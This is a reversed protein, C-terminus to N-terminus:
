MPPHVSVLLLSKGRPGWCPLPMAQSLVEGWHERTASSDFPPAVAGRQGGLDAGPVVGFAADQGRREGPLVAAGLPAPVEPAPHAGLGEGELAQQGAVGLAVAGDLPVPARAARLAEVVGKVELPVHPRVGTLGLPEFM